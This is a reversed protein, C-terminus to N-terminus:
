NVYYMNHSMAISREQAMKARQRARGARNLGGAGRGGGAGRAEGPRRVRLADPGEAHAVFATIVAPHMHPKGGLPNDAVDVDVAIAWCHRSLVKAGRQPRWAYAGGIDGLSAWAEPDGHVATFAARFVDVLKRHVRLRTVTHQRDWSLPLPAPLAITALIGDPWRQSVSGDRLVYQSPDGFEAIVQADTLLM